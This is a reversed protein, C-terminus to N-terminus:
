IQSFSMSDYIQNLHTHKKSYIYHLKQIQHNIPYQASHTIKKLQAFFLFSFKSSVHAKKLFLSFFSVWLIISLYIVRMLVRGYQIMRSECAMVCVRM